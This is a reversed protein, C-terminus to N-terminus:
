VYNFNIVIRVKEDTCSTGTHKINAPFSLMRNAVSEVKTGDEFKTYGNNTNVYFISTTWQKLKEESANSMDVHFANEVINPTRALLNAKIRWLSVPQILELICNLQKIFQSHGASGTLTLDLSDNNRKYFFHIFQFKDIDDKYVIADNYYWPLGSPGTLMQQIKNLNKKDLINDEINIKTMM